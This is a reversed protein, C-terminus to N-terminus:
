SPLFGLGHAFGGQALGRWAVRGERDLLLGTSAEVAVRVVCRPELPLSLRVQAGGPSLDMLRGLTLPSGQSDFVRVAGDMSQRRESRREAEKASPVEFVGQCADALIALSFPKVLYAHAGEHLAQSFSQHDTRGTVVVVRPPSVLQALGHLLAHGSLGPLTLDLVLLEVGGEALRFQAAEASSVSEVEHGEVTLVQVFLGCLDADDECVLIRRRTPRTM